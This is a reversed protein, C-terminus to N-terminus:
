VRAGDYTLDWNVTWCNLNFYIIKLLHLHWIHLQYFFINNVKPRKLKLFYM